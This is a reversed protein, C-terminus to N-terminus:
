AIQYLRHLYSSVSNTWVSIEKSTTKYEPFSTL